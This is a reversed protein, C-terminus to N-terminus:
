TTKRSSLRIQRRYCRDKVPKFALFSESRKPWDSFSNISQLFHEFQTMLHSFFSFFYPNSKKRNKKKENRNSLNRLTSFIKRHTTMCWSTGKLKLTWCLLFIGVPIKKTWVWDWYLPFECFPMKRKFEFKGTCPFIGVFIKKENWRFTKSLVYKACMFCSFRTM